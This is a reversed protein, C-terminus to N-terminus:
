RAMSFKWTRKMIHTLFVELRNKEDYSYTM